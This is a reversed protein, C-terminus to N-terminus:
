FAVAGEGILDWSVPTGSKLDRNVKRGMFNELYKPPLGYGPRIARLNERTLVDGARLDKAIYLSRRFVLSKREKETPGYNVKGLAQWSRESEAVLAQMEEPELSFASDVGGDTRRLTFHKEIVTAGLAVSAVSVGVGMTHDSLGVQCGFLERMHPITLLNTNEPPAPYTSTCKLLVLDNCGADRATRVTEDLEAVTAMGTSIIMPKGTVAVKRILSLDTNEFSAIKYAPCDLSELFDVATEDFPTSFCILGLERARDFIPQHWEWPTHAEQYLEYLSKGQWLSAPDEIVFEGADIDLTMTEATYTQLKLAHAGSAAAAEVIELARALSQNHNGSMEAIVLPPAESGVPRGAIEINSNVTM